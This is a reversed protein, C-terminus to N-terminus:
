PGPAKRVLLARSSLGQALKQSAEKLSASEKWEQGAGWMQLSELREGRERPIAQRGGTRRRRTDGHRRFGHQQLSGPLAARARSTRMGMQLYNQELLGSIGEPM